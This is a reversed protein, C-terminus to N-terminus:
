LSDTRVETSNRFGLFNVKYTVSYKAAISDANYSVLLDYQKSENLKNYWLDNNGAISDPKGLYQYVVLRKQGLPINQWKAPLFTVAAKPMVVRTVVLFGGILLLMLLGIIILWARM